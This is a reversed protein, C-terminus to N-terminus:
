GPEPADAFLGTTVGDGTVETIPDDVDDLELTFGGLPDGALWGGLVPEAPVLWLSATLALHVVAAALLCTVRRRATLVRGSAILAGLLPVLILAILRM